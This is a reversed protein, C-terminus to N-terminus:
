VLSSEVPNNPSYNILFLGIGMFIWIFMGSGCNALEVNFGIFVLLDTLAVLVFIMEKQLFTEPLIRLYKIGKKYFAFVIWFFASLGILGSKAAITIYSNHPDMGKMLEGLPGRYLFASGFGQGFYPNRKIKEIEQIWAIIRFRGSIDEEYNVVGSGSKLIRKVLLNSYFINVFLLLAVSVFTFM